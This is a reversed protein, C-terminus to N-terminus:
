ARVNHQTDNNQTENHESDTHKTDNLHTDNRYTTEHLIDSHQIDDYEKDISQPLIYITMKSLMIMGRTMKSRLLMNLERFTLTM